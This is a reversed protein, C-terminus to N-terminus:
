RRPEEPLWLTKPMQFVAKVWAPCRGRAFIVAGVINGPPADLGAAFRRMSGGSTLVDDVILFPLPLVSGVILTGDKPDINRFKELAEALRVGGRPVGSVAAFPGVMQRIMVALAEIDGDSLADCELKWRSKAGSNLTFDGLQFLNVEEAGEEEANSEAAADVM